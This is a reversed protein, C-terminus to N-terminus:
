VGVPMKGAIDSPEVRVDSDAVKAAVPRKGHLDSLVSGCGWSGARQSNAAATDRPNDGELLQSRGVERNGM